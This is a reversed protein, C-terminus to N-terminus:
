VAAVAEIEILYDPHALGAVFMGTVIPPALPQPQTKQVKQVAAFGEQLSQGQVIYITMKFVDNLSAGAAELATIVNKYAQETQSAIDKGVVKGTADVGNQGGVFIWKSPNTVTAVQTFAPNKHMTDPNIRQITM